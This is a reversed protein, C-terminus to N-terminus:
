SPFFSGEKRGLKAPLVKARQLGATRGFADYLVTIRPQPADTSAQCLGTGSVTLLAGFLAWGFASTKM